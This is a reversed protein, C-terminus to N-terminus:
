NFIVLPREVTFGLYNCLSWSLRKTTNRSLTVFARVPMRRFSERLTENPAMVLDHPVSMSLLCKHDTTLDPWTTPIPIIFYLLVAPSILLFQSLPGRRPSLFWSICHVLPLSSHFSNYLVAGLPPSDHFVTFCRPPPNFSRYLVVCLSLFSYMITRSFRCFIYIFISCLLCSLNEYRQSFNHYNFRAGFKFYQGRIEFWCHQTPWACLPLSFCISM